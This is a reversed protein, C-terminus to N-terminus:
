DVVLVAGLLGAVAMAQIQLVLEVVLELMVVVQVALQM